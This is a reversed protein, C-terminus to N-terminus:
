DFHLSFRVIEKTATDIEAQLHGDGKPTIGFIGNLLGLVGLSPTGPDVPYARVQITPHDALVENCPVRFAFLNNVAKPDAQLAGNLLLIARELSVHTEYAYILVLLDTAFVVMSKNEPHCALLKLSALRENFNDLRVAKIEVEGESEHFAKASYFRNDIEGGKSMSSVISAWGDADIVQGFVMPTDPDGHSCGDGSEYKVVRVGGDKIREFCLGDDVHFM